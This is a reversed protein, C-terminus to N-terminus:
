FPQIYSLVANSHWRGMQKIRHVSIRNLFLQTARGMRFNHSTVHHSWGLIKRSKALMGRFQCESIPLGLRDIYLPEEVHRPRPRMGLYNLLKNM